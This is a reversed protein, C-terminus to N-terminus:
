MIGAAAPGCVLASAQPGLAGQPPFSAHTYHVKCNATAHVEAAIDDLRQRIDDGAPEDTPPPPEVTLGYASVDIGGVAGACMCCRLRGTRLPRVPLHKRGMMRQREWGEIQVKRLLAEGEPRQPRIWGGVVPADWRPRGAATSCQRQQRQQRQPQPQSRQQQALPVDAGRQQQLLDHLEKIKDLVLTGYETSSLQATISGKDSVAKGAETQAWAM